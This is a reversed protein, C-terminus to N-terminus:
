EGELSAIFGRIFAIRRMLTANNFLQKDSKFGLISESRKRRYVKLVNSDRSSVSLQDKQSLHRKCIKKIKRSVRRREEPDLSTIVKAVERLEGSLPPLGMEVCKLDLMIDKFNM